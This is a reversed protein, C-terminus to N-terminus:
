VNRIENTLVELKDKLESRLDENTLNIDHLTDVVINIDHADPTNLLRAIVELLQTNSNNLAKLEYTAKIQHEKLRVSAKTIIAANINLSWCIFFTCVCITVIVGTM